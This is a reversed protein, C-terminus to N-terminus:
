NRQVLIMDAEEKSEECAFEITYMYAMTRYALM